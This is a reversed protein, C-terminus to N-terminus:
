NVGSRIIFELIDRKVKYVRVTKNTIRCQRNGVVEVLGLEEMESLRPHVNNRDASIFFGIRHMEKALESATIGEPYLLLETLVQSQRTGLSRLIQNYRKM